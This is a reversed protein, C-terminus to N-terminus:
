VRVGSGQGRCHRWIEVHTSFEGLFLAHFADAGFESTVHEELLTPAVHWRCALLVRREESQQWDICARDVEAGCGPPISEQRSAQASPSVRPDRCLCM